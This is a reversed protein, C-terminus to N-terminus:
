YICNPYNDHGNCHGRIRCTNRQNNIEATELSLHILCRKRHCYHSIHQTAILDCPLLNHQLLYMHRHVGLRYSRVPAGDDHNIPYSIRLYAYSNTDINFRATSGNYIRCGMHNLESFQIMKDIHHQADVAM